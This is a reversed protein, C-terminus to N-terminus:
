WLKEWTVIFVAVYRLFPLQESEIWAVVRASWLFWLNKDKLEDVTMDGM